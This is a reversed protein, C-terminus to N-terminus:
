LEDVSGSETLQHSGFLIYEERSIWYPTGPEHLRLVNDYPPHVKVLNAGMATNWSHNGTPYPCVNIIASHEPLAERLDCSLRPVFGQLDTNGGTVLIHSFCDKIYQAPLDKAAEAVMGPLDLSAYMMEPALYLESSLTVEIFELRGGSQAAGIAGAGHYGRHHYYGRERQSRVHLTESRPGSTRHEERSLNLSLRCKQKVDSTDLSSVTAGTAEKHEKWTLAQKLFQSVHWGGVAITQTRSTEVRGDLVVWVSTNTAGSDIVICTEVEFLLSIALAKPLLCLRAVQLEEFLYKLLKEKVVLPFTSPETFVLCANPRQLDNIMKFQNFIHNLFARVVPFADRHELAILPSLLDLNEAGLILAADKCYGNTLPLVANYTLFDEESMYNTYHQTHGAMKVKTSSVMEKECLLGNVRDDECFLCLPQNAHQQYRMHHLQQSCYELGTHSSMSRNLCLEGPRSSPIVSGCFSNQYHCDCHTQARDITADCDYCKLLKPVAIMSLHKKLGFSATILWTMKGGIDLAIKSSREELCSQGCTYEKCHICKPFLGGETCIISWLRRCCDKFSVGLQLLSNSLPFTFPTKRSLKCWQYRWIYENNAYKAYFRCSRGIALLDLPEVLELIQLQIEEPIDFILTEKSLDNEPSVDLEM